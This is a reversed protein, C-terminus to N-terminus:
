VDEDELVLATLMSISDSNSEETVGIACSFPFAGMFYSRLDVDRCYSSPRSVAVADSSQQFIDNQPV